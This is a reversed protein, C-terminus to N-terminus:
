ASERECVCVCLVCVCIYIYIYIYLIYNNWWNKLNVQGKIDCVFYTKNETQECVRMKNNNYKNEESSTNTKM